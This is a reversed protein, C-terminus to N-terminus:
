MISLLSVWGSGNRADNPLSIEVFQLPRFICHSIKKLEYLIHIKKQINTIQFIVVCGDYNSLM